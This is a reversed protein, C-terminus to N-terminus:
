ALPGICPSNVRGRGTEHLRCRGEARLTFVPIVVDEHGLVSIYSPPGCGLAGRRDSSSAAQHSHLGLACGPGEVVRQHSAGGWARGAWILAGGVALVRVKGDDVRIVQSCAFREEKAEEWVPIMDWESSTIWLFVFCFFFFVRCKVHLVPCVAVINIGFPVCISSSWIRPATLIESHMFVPTFWPHANWRTVSYLYLLGTWFLLWIYSLSLCSKTTLLLFSVSTTFHWCRDGFGRFKVTSCSQKNKERQSTRHFLISRM